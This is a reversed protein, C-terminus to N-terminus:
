MTRPLINAEKDTLLRVYVTDEEVDNNWRLSAALNQAELLSFCYRQM